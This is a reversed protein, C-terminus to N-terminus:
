RKSPFHFATEARFLVKMESTFPLARSSHHPFPGPQRHSAAAICLFPLPSGKWEQWLEPAVTSVEGTGPQLVPSDIQDFVLWVCAMLM